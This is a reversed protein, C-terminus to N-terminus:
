SLKSESDVINKYNQASLLDDSEKPDVDEVLLLWGKHHPDQNILEPSDIVEKNIMKVTGSVPAFIDSVAKVSEVVGIADGKKIKSGVEPLEVFVVDGLSHQAHETIGIICANGTFKIWEHEQSYLRDTPFNTQM